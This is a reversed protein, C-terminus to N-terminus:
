RDKLISCFLSELQIQQAVNNKLCEKTHLLYSNVKHSNLFEAENEEGNKYKNQSFYMLDTLYGDLLDRIFRTNRNKQSRELEKVAKSGGTALRNGTAGYSEKLKTLEAEDRNESYVKAHEKAM